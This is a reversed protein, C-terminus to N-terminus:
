TKDGALQDRLENARQKPYSLLPYIELAAEFSRLAAAPKELRDYILGLGTLAGFHRPELALTQQIDRVSADFNGLFYHVTARKNWGEAFGPAGKVVQDFHTLALFLDQREMASIGLELHERMLPDEIELWIEWIEQEVVQAESPDSMLRLMQFLPTLSPDRQDGHALGATAVITLACLYVLFQGRVSM